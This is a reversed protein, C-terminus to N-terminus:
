GVNSLKAFAQGMYRCLDTAVLSEVSQENIALDAALGHLFVGLRAAEEAGYGQALFAAIIGTLADGTGGKALGANGSINLYGRGNSAVLTHHGKLVIICDLERSKMLATNLRSFDDNHHGFLRDFERPHPTLVSHAPLRGIMEPHGAIINLGDADIVLPRKAAEMLTNLINIAYEDQGLGPGIAVVSYHQLGEENVLTPVTMAEPIRVNMATYDRSLLHASVLGAGARLCCETAIILAGAKGSAGGVLLVHGFLGKHAFRNRPRYMGAAVALGTLEFTTDLSALFEKKLGIDLVAVRGLNAINEPVLMALKLSQFTLTDDARITVCGKSSQDIFMGSPIDISIVNAESSNIHQVLAAALGELPRNLGSGYLADIVVDNKSIAPFHAPSQIFHIGTTMPRLRHLNTEFDPSGKKGEGIIYVSVPLRKQILMRAIAVGDGGNNGNGCFVKFVSPANFRKLLWETCASAAREMLDISSVPEHEITFRDWEKVQAADPLKMCSM